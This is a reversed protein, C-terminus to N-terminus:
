STFEARALSEIKRVFDGKSRAYDTSEKWDQEALNSKIDIYEQAAEPHNRLYDRFLLHSKWSKSDYEVLHIHSRRPFKEMDPLSGEEPIEMGPIELESANEVRIM